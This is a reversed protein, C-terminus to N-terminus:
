RRVGVTVHLGDQPITTATASTVIQVSWNDGPALLVENSLNSATGGGAATVATMATASGNKFVTVAYTNSGGAFVTMEVRLESLSMYGTVLARVDTQTASQGGTNPALYRTQGGAISTRGNTFHVQEKSSPVVNWNSNIVVGRNGVIELESANISSPLNELIFRDGGDIRIHKSNAHPSANKNYDGGVLKCFVSVNSFRVGYAAAGTSGYGNVLPRFLDVDGSEIFIGDGSILELYPEHFVIKSCAETSGSVWIGRGGLNEFSCDIWNMHRGARIEVGHSDGGRIRIVDFTLATPREPGSEGEFLLGVGTMEHLHLNAFRNHLVNGSLKMAAVTTAVSARNGDVRFNEYSACVAAGGGTSDDLLLVSDGTFPQSPKFVTAIAGDGFLSVNSINLTESLMYVGTRAHVATQSSAVATDFCNQLAAHDDTVGDGKAGFWRVSFPGDFLRKWRGTGGEDAAFVTGGDAATSSGAHWYFTGGGGDNATTHGSVLAQQGNTLSAKTQATMAAINVLDLVAM